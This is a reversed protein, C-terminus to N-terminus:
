VDNEECMLNAYRSDLVTMSGLHLKREDPAVFFYTGAIMSLYRQGAVQLLLGKEAMRRHFATTIEYYSKCGSGFDEDLVKRRRANSVYYVRIKKLVDFDNGGIRVRFNFAGRQSHIYQELDITGGGNPLKFRIPLPFLGPTEEVLDVTLEILNREALGLVAIDSADEDPFRARYQEIFLHEIKRSLSKPIAADRDSKVVRGQTFTPEASDAAWLPSASLFLVFVSIM